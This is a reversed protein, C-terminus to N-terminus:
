QTNLKSSTRLLWGLYKEYFSCRSSLGDYGAKHAQASEVLYSEVMDQLETPKDQLQAQYSNPHFSNYFVPKQKAARCFMMQFPAVGTSSKFTRTTSTQMQWITRTSSTQMQWITRTTSTQMQWITRTSSTQMQWITRTPSTQMQWITRTSSTQMQILQEIHMSCTICYYSKAASQHPLCEYTMFYYLHQPHALLKIPVRTISM